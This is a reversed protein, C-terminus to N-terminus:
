DLQRTVVSIEQLVEYAGADRCQSYFRRRVGGSYGPLLTNWSNTHKKTSLGCPLDQRALAYRIDNQAVVHQGMHWIDVIEHAAYFNQKRGTANHSHLEWM